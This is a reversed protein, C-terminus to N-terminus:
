RPQRATQRPARGWPACAGQRSQLPQFTPFARKGLGNPTTQRAPSINAPRDSRSPSGDTHTGPPLRRGPPAKSQPPSNAFRNVAHAGLRRRLQTRLYPRFRSQRTFFSANQAFPPLTTSPAIAWTRSHAANATTLPVASVWYLAPCHLRRPTAQYGVHHGCLRRSVRPRAPRQGDVLRLYAGSTGPARVTPNQLFYPIGFTRSTREAPFRSYTELSQAARRPLKASSRACDPKREERNPNSISNGARQQTPPRPRLPKSSAPKQADM